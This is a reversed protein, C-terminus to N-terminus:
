SIVLLSLLSILFAFVAFQSLRRAVMGRFFELFCIGAYLLWIVYLPWLPHSDGKPPPPIKEASFIGAALLIVGFFMLRFVAKSLNHMPPLHYFLTELKGSRVHHEQMLFMAGAICAMGFSGYSILSIGIHFETWTEAGGHDLAVQIAQDKDFPMLAAVICIILVLPSTFVGMLSLRYSSGFLLYIIVMSWSVFVLIELLNTVPCREHIQGCEALFMSQFAMGLFMALFNWMSKKYHGSRLSTIAYLFGGCFFVAACVLFLRDRDM